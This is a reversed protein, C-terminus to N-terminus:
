DNLTKKLAAKARAEKLEVLIHIATERTEQDPHGEMISVLVDVAQSPYGEGMAYMAAERIERDPDSFSLDALTQFADAEKSESLLYIATERIEGQSHTKAIRVIRDESGPIESLAYLAAERLESDKDRNLIDQLVSSAREAPLAEGIQYIAAERVESHNPKVVFDILAEQAAPFTMNGIGYVAQERVEISRDATGTHILVRLAEPSNLEGMWDAAEARFEDDSENKLINALFPFSLGSMSHCGIASILNEKFKHNGGSQYLRTLYEYSESPDVIGLWIFRSGKFDLPISLTMVQTEIPTSSNRSFRLLIAVEKLIKERKENRDDMGKLVMRAHDKVQQDNSAPSSQIGYIIEQLTPKEREVHIHGNLHIGTLFHENKYMMKQISYGIWSEGGSERHMQIARDMRSVLPLEAGGTRAIDVNGAAFGPRFLLLSLLMPIAVFTRFM